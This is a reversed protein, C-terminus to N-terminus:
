QNEGGTTFEHLIPRFKRCRMKDSIIAHNQLNKNELNKLSSKVTRVTPLSSNDPINVKGCYCQYETRTICREFRQIAADSISFSLSISIMPQRGHDLIAEIYTTMDQENVRNINERMTRFQAHAVEFPNQNQTIDKPQNDTINMQPIKTTDIVVEDLQNIFVSMPRANDQGKARKMFQPYINTILDTVSTYERIVYGRNNLNAIISELTKNGSKSCVHIEDGSLTASIILSSLISNGMNRYRSTSMIAMSAPVKGEVFVKFAENTYVDIGLLSGRSENACLYDKSFYSRLPIGINSLSNCDLPTDAGMMVCQNQYKEYKSVIRKQYEQRNNSHTFKVLRAHGESSWQCAMGIHLSGTDFDEIDQFASRLQPKQIKFAIRGCRQSIFETKLSAMRPNDIDQAFLILHIGAFRSQRSIQGIKTILAKPAEYDDETGDNIIFQIEDILILIRPLRRDNTVRLNYDQINNVDISQFLKNRRNMENLAMGLIANADETDNKESIVRIHPIKSKIYEYISAKDKGDLLWFNLDDPSYMMSGNLIISHLLSSKGTNTMGIVMYSNNLESTSKDEKCYLDIRVVDTGSKGVPISISAGDCKRFEKGFGVDEYPIAMSRYEKVQDSISQCRIQIKSRLDGDISSLKAESGNYLIQKGNIQFTVFERLLLQRERAIEPSDRTNLVTDDLIIMRVGSIIGNKEALGRLRCVDNQNLRSFGSRIIVLQFSEISGAKTILDHLDSMPHRITRSIRISSNYVEDLFTSDRHVSIPLETSEAAQPWDGNTIDMIYVRLCMPYKEIYRMMLGSLIRDIFTYDDVQNPKIVINGGNRINLTIELPYTDINYHYKLLPSNMKKSRFEGICISEPLKDVSTPISTNKCVAYDTVHINEDLFKKSEILFDNLKNEITKCSDNLNQIEISANEKIKNENEIKNMMKQSIISATELLMQQHRNNEIISKQNLLSSKKISIEDIENFLFDIAEWSRDKSLQPNASNILDDIKSIDIATKKEVIEPVKEIVNNLLKECEDLQNVILSERKKLDKEIEPNYHIEGSSVKITMESIEKIETITISRNKCLEEVFKKFERDLKSLDESNQQKRISIKNKISKITNQVEEYAKDLEHIDNPSITM